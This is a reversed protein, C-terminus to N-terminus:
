PKEPPVRGPDSPFFRVCTFMLSYAVSTVFRQEHVSRLCHGGLVRLGLLGHSGCGAEIWRRLELTETLWSLLPYNPPM